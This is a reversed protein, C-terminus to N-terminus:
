NYEMWDSTSIVHCGKDHGLGGLGQGGEGERQM